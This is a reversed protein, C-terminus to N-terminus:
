NSPDTEVWPGTLYCEVSATGQIDVEGMGGQPLPYELRETRDLDFALVVNNGLELTAAGGALAIGQTKTDGTRKDLDVNLMPRDEFLAPHERTIGTTNLALLVTEALGTASRLEGLALVM